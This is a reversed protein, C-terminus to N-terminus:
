IYHQGQFGRTSPEAHVCVYIVICMILFCSLMVRMKSYTQNSCIHLFVHLFLLSSQMRGSGVRTRVNVFLKKQVHGCLIMTLANRSFLQQMHGVFPRHQYICMSRSHTDLWRHLLDPWVLHDSERTYQILLIATHPRVAHYETLEHYRSCLANSHVFSHGAGIPRHCYCSYTGSM